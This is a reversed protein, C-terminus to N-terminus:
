IGRCLLRWPPHPLRFTCSPQSYSARIFTLNRKVQTTMTNPHPRPAATRTQQAAAAARGAEVHAHTPCPATDQRWLADALEPTRGEGTLAQSAKKRTVNSGTGYPVSHGDGRNKLGLLEYHRIIFQPKFSDRWM